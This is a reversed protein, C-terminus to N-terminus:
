SERMRYFTHYSFTPRNLLPSLSFLHLDAGLYIAKHMADTLAQTHKHNGNFYIHSLADIMATRHKALTYMALLRIVVSLNETGCLFFLSLASYMCNGDATTAIPKFTQLLLPHCEVYRDVQLNPLSNAYPIPLANLCQVV